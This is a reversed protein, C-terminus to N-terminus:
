AHEPRDRADCSAQISGVTIVDVMKGCDLLGRGLDGRGVDRRGLHAIVAGIWPALMDTTISLGLAILLLGPYYYYRFVQVNLSVAFLYVVGTLCAFTRLTIGRALALYLAGSLLAFIQLLARMHGTGMARLLNLISVESWDWRPDLAHELAFTKQIGIYLYVPLAPQVIVWPLMALGFILFAIMMVRVSMSRGVAFFLYIGFLAAIAVATQQTALLAGVIAASLLWSPFLLSVAFAVVLWWYPWAQGGLIM